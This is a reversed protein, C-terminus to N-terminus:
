LNNKEKCTCFDCECHKCSDKEDKDEKEDKSIM